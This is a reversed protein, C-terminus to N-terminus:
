SSHCSAPPPASLQRCSCSSSELQQPLSQETQQQCVSWCSSSTVILTCFYKPKTFINPLINLFINHTHTIVNHHCPTHGLMLWWSSCGGSGGGGGDLNQSSVFLFTQIRLQHHQTTHASYTSCHSIHRSPQWTDPRDAALCQFYILVEALFIKFTGFINWIMNGARTVTAHPARTECTVHSTVIICIPFNKSLHQIRFIQHMKIIIHCVNKTETNKWRDVSKILILEIMHNYHSLIIWFHWFKFWHWYFIRMVFFWGTNIVVPIESIFWFIEALSPCIWLFM